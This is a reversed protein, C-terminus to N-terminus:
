GELTNNKWYEYALFPWLPNRDISIMSRNCSNCLVGRIKNTRHDHDIHCQKTGPKLIIKCIACRGQQAKLIMEYQEFTMRFSNWLNYRKQRRQWEVNGLEKRRKNRSRRERILYASRNLARNAKMWTKNYIRREDKRTLAM